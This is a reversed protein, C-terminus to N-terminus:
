LSDGYPASLPPMFRQQMTSMLKKFEDVTFFYGELKMGSEFPFLEYEAHAKIVHEAVMERMHRELMRKVHLKDQGYHNLDGVKKYIHFYNNSVDM